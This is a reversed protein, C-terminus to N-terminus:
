ITENNKNNKARLMGHLEADNGRELYGHTSNRSDESNAIASQLKGKETYIKKNKVM